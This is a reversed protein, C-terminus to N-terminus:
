RNPNPNPNPAFLDAHTHTDMHRYRDRHSDTLIQINAHTQPPYPTTSLAHQRDPDAPTAGVPVHLPLQSNM